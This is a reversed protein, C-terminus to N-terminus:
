NGKPYNFAVNRYIRGQISVEPLVADFSEVGALRAAGAVFQSTDGVTEGTGANAVAKFTLRAEGDPLMALVDFSEAKIRLYREMHPTFFWATVTGAEADALFEIHAEEDGLTVGAGGHPPDHHHSGAHPHDHDHGGNCGAQGLAVVGALIMWSMLKSM